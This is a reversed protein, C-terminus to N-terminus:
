PQITCLSLLEGYLRVMAPKRFAALIHRTDYEAQVIPLDIRRAPLSGVTEWRRPFRLVSARRCKLRNKGGETYGQSTLDQPHGPPPRGPVCQRGGGLVYETRGSDAPRFIGAAVFVARARM